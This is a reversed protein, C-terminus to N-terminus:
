QHSDRSRDANGGASSFLEPHEARLLVRLRRRADHLAKRAAGPSLGLVDAFEAPTQGDAFRLALVLRDRNSLTALAAALAGRRESRLFREEPSIEESPLQPAQDIPRERAEDRGQRRASRLCAHSVIVGLYTSLRSDGRWARLARFDNAWLSAVVQQWIEQAALPDLGFRRRALGIALGRYQEVFRDAAGEDGAIVSRILEQDDDGSGGLRPM